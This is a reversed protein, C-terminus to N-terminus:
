VGGEARVQAPGCSEGPPLALLLPLPSLTDLAGGTSGTSCSRSRTGTPSIGSFLPYPTVM